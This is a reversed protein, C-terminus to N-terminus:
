KKSISPKGEPLVDPNVTAQVFNPMPNPIWHMVIKEGSRYQQM